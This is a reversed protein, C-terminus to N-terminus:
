DFIGSDILVHSFTWMSFDSYYFNSAFSIAWELPVQFNEQVLENQTVLQFSLKYFINQKISQKNITQKNISQMDQKM